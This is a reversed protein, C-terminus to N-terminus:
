YEVGLLDKIDALHTPSRRPVCCEKCNFWAVVARVISRLREIELNAEELESM